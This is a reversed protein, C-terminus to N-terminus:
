SSARTFLRFLNEALDINLIEEGNKFEELSKTYGSNKGNIHRFISITFFCLFPLHGTVLPTNLIAIQKFFTKSVQLQADRSTFINRQVASAVTFIHSFSQRGGWFPVLGAM